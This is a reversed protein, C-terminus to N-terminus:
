ITRRITAFLLVLFILWFGIEVGYHLDDMGYIFHFAITLLVFYGFWPLGIYQYYFLKSKYIVSVRDEGFKEAYQKRLQQGLQTDFNSLIKM